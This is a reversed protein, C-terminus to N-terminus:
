VIRVHSILALCILLCTMEILASSTFITRRMAVTTTATMPTSDTITTTTTTPNVRKNRAQHIV